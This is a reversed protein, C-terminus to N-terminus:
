LNNEIFEILQNSNPNNPFLRKLEEGVRQAKALQGTNVYYYCLAYLYDFNEPELEITKRLRDEAKEQDGIQQYILALNYYIRSNEPNREIAIELYEVSEAYKQQEALLLGLSYYVGSFEPNDEIIKRYIAEAKDNEGLQNHVIALNLKAPDFKDDTELAKLYHKKAEQLNGLNSNLIGLNMRGSPFDAMYENNERYENIAKNYAEKYQVPIENEPVVSLKIAAQSRIIRHPDSLLPAINSLYDQLNNSTFASIAAHRLIPSPDDLYIKVIQAATDTTFQGLYDIASARVIQPFLTDNILKVLELDGGPTMNRGMALIEGYHTREKKGYWQEFYKISWDVSENTHCQNCANPVGISKSLRPNPLRISHDNRFDIGMYYQAPMHCNVCQAGEGVAVVKGDINLPNGPEGINKHFHHKDSGYYDRTHCQFCLDNGEFLRAGSHVDHCDNCKIDTHYMKSQVFSGWVYDEELIQGDPHYNQDLRSPLMYDYINKFDHSFDQVQGRRSHCRACLDVYQENNISSTQVKLEFNTNGPRSGEPLRAWKIHESGPGHCAECSVNIESYTTYFSDVEHFYNKKLNTSHCEACMGNWNQGQGTWHLWDTHYIDENYVMASMNFWEEKETDWAVHLCQYKGREFPILYQQLPTYGFTHTIEFDTKNGDPGVTNVFFKGDRKFFRHTNFGDNYEANDFDGLVTSDNAVSMAHYHHSKTWLNYENIHCEMCQVAGVFQFGIDQSEVNRIKKLISLPIISLIIITAILGINRWSKM